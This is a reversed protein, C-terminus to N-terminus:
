TLLMHILRLNGSYEKEYLDVPLNCTTHIISLIFFPNVKAPRGFTRLSFLGKKTWLTTNNVFILSCIQCIFLVINSIYFLFRNMFLSFLITNIKNEIGAQLFPDNKKVFRKMVQLQLATKM